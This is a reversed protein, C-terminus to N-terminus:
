LLLYLGEYQCRNGCAGCIINGFEPLYLITGCHNCFPPGPNSSKTHNM